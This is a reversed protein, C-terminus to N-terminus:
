PCPRVALDNLFLAETRGRQAHFITVTDGRVGMVPGLLQDELRNYVCKGILSDAAAPVARVMQNGSDTAPGSCGAQASPKLGAARAEEVSKFYILNAAALSKWGNCGVYYYTTGRRSAVYQTGPPVVASVSTAQSTAPRSTPTGVRCTKNAAICTNGCPIGKTCRKQAVASTAGAALFAVVLIATRIFLSQM